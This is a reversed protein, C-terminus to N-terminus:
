NTSEHTHLDMGLSTNTKCTRCRKRHCHEVCKGVINLPTECVPNSWMPPQHITKDNPYSIDLLLYLQAPQIYTLRGSHWRDQEQAPSLALTHVNPKFLATTNGDFTTTICHGWTVVLLVTDTHLFALTSIVSWTDRIHETKGSFLM